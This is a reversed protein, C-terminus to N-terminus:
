LGRQRGAPWVVYGSRVVPTRLLTATGVSGDFLAHAGTATLPLGLPSVQLKPPRSLNLHIGALETVLEDWEAASAAIAQQERGGDTKSGDRGPYPQSAEDSWTENVNLAGM